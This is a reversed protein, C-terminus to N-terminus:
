ARPGSSVWLGSRVRGLVSSGFSALRVPRDGPGPRERGPSRGSPDAWCRGRASHAPSHSVRHPTALQHGRRRHPARCATGARPSRYRQASARAVGGQPSATGTRTRRRTRRDPLGITRQKAARVGQRPCRGSTTRLFGGELDSRTRRHRFRSGRRRGLWHLGIAHCGASSSSRRRRRPPRGPAPTRRQRSSDRSTGVEPLRTVSRRGAIQRAWGAECSCVRGLDPPGFMAERVPLEGTLPIASDM